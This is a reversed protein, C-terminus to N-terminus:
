VCIFVVTYMDVCVRIQVCDYEFQDRHPYFQVTNTRLAFLVNLMFIEFIVDLVSFVSRETFQSSNKKAECTIQEFETWYM